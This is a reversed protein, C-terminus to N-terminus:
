NYLVRVKLLLIMPKLLVRSLTNIINSRANM